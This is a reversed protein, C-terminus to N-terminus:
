EHLGDDESFSRQSDAHGCHYYFCIAIEYNGGYGCGAAAARCSIPLFAFPEASIHLWKRTRVAPDGESFRSGSVADRAAPGRRVAIGIGIRVRSRASSTPM